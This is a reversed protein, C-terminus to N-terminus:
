LPYSKIRVRVGLNNHANYTGNSTLGYTEQYFLGVSKSLRFNLGIGLDAEPLDVKKTEVVQYASKTVWTRNIRASTYRIGGLLYFKVRREMKTLNYHVYLPITFGNIKYDVKKGKRVDDTETSFFTVGTELKWFKNFQYYGSAGFGGGTYYKEPQEFLQLPSSSDLNALSKFTVGTGALSFKFSLSRENVISDKKGTAFCAVAFCTFLLTNFIKM